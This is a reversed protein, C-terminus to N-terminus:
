LTEKRLVGERFFNRVPAFEALNAIPVGPDKIHRIQRLFNHLLAVETMAQIESVRQVATTFPRGGDTADSLIVRVLTVLLELASIGLQTEAESDWQHESLAPFFNSPTQWAYWIAGSVQYVESNKGHFEELIAPSRRLVEVCFDRCSLLCPPMAGDERLWRQHDLVQQLLDDTDLTDSAASDDNWRTIAYSLFVYLWTTLWLDMASRPQLRIQGGAGDTITLLLQEIQHLAKTTDYRFDYTLAPILDVVIAASLSEGHGGVINDVADQLLELTQTFHSHSVATRACAILLALQRKPARAERALSSYISFASPAGLASLVDARRRQREDESTWLHAESSIPIWRAKTAKIIGSSRLLNGIGWKTTLHDFYQRKRRTKNASTICM